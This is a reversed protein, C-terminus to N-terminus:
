TWCAFMTKATQNVRLGRRPNGLHGPRKEGLKVLKLESVVDSSWLSAFDARREGSWPELGLWSVTMLKRINPSM